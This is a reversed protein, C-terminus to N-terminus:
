IFQQYTEQLYIREIVDAMTQSKIETEEWEKEANSDATIGGGIYLAFKDKFVQMCRLNVFLNSQKEINLPGLFGSYYARDHQENNIIFDKASQKPIGCVAPTPHLAKLFRFLSNPPRFRFNTKLHLLKGAKSTYPTTKQYNAKERQLTAEIYREVIAQEEIEKEGWVVNELPLGLDRQTGALAVTQVNQNRQTLFVEPSAGMWCGINPLNFLYVFANTHLEKLTKFLQFLDGTQLNITEIRSFIVKQFEQQTARIFGKVENLYTSRNINQVSGKHNSFFQIVPNKYFRDKRIFVAPSSAKEVFPHILFGERNMMSVGFKSLRSDNQQIMFYDKSKPLSYLAFIDKQGLQIM